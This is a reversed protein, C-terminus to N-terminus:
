IINTGSNWGLSNSAIFDAFGCISDILQNNENLIELTFRPQDEPTHDPDELVVAYQLYM